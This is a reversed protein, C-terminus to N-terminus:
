WGLGRGTAMADLRHQNPFGWLPGSTTATYPNDGSGGYYPNPDTNPATGSATLWSTYTNRAWAQYGAVTPQTGPPLQAVYESPAQAIAANFNALEASSPAYGIANTAYTVLEASLAAQDAATPPWYNGGASAGGPTAASATSPSLVVYGVLAALGALVWPNM